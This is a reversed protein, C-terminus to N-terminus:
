AAAPCVRNLIRNLDDLDVPKTLHFDFGAQRSRTKDEEQGYGTLAILCTHGNHGNEMERVARAVEYGSMGPMGIDQIMVDPNFTQFIELATKGDNAVEVKHQHLTLLLSLSQAADANDDVVLIKCSKIKGCEGSSPVVPKYTSESLPLRVTFESGREIGESKVGVVGDHMEVLKKVLALGVGLGGSSRQLSRDLQVFLDFIKDIKEHPIGMGSDRVTIVCDGEERFVALCINGGPRTYKAANNLLNGIVQVIRAHDVEVYIPATPLHLTFNHGAADIIPRITEVAQEVVPGIPQRQKRLEIRGRTIRSVDMLDDILRTMHHVQRRMVNMARQFPESGPKAVELVQLGTLIPALPNRLEHALTALFEDKLRQEERLLEEMNKSETLERKKELENQEARRRAQLMRECIYSIVFATIVFLAVSIWKVPAIYFSNHPALIFFTAMVVSLSIAAIGGKWGSRYASIAVALFYFM